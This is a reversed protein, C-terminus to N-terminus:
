RSAEPFPRFPDWSDDWDDSLEEQWNAVARQLLQKSEIVSREAAVLQEWNGLIWLKRTRRFRRLDVDGKELRTVWERISMVHLRGTRPVLDALQVRVLARPSTTLVILDFRHQAEASAPSAWSLSATRLAVLARRVKPVHGRTQRVLAALERAGLATPDAEYLPRGNTLTVRVVGAEILPRLHRHLGQHPRQLSRGLERLGFIRRNPSFIATLVDARVASGLLASLLDM